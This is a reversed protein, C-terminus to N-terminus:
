RGGDELEGLLKRAAAARAQVSRLSKEVSPWEGALWSERAATAAQVLYLLVGCLAAQQSQESQGM